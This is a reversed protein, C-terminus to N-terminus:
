FITEVHQRRGIVAIEAATAFRTQYPFPSNGTLQRCFQDFM